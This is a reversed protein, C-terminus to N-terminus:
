LDSYHCELLNEPQHSQLMVSNVNDFKNVIVSNTILLLNLTLNPTLDGYFLAVYFCCLFVFVTCHM